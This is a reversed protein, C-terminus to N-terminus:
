CGFRFYAGRAEVLDWKGDRAEKVRPDWRAAGLSPVYGMVRGRKRPGCAQSHLELIGAFFKGDQLGLARTDIRKWITRPTRLSGANAPPVAIRQWPKPPNM